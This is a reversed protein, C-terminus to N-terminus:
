KQYTKKNQNKYVKKWYDITEIIDDKEAFGYVNLDPTWFFNKFNEPSRLADKITNMNDCM